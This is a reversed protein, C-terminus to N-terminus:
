SAIMERANEFAAATPKEGSLMTAITSIREEGNLLKMCTRIHGNKFEKYIFYHASARAAIQPQHTIALIQHGISLEKMIIGVQRAAEGSIGTDIEDFILTPLQVSKAVLSKISLMLRSLEGGSVVKRLPEFRDSNNADFLFEIDDNGFNNLEGSNKIEIRIRANPMGVKALLIHVKEEIPKAIQARKLSLKEAIKKLSKLHDECQKEVVKITEMLNFAKELQEGLVQKIDILEKTTSVDHKKFLKYGASIRENMLNVKEEDYHVTNNLRDLDGAIDQLEIQASHLRDTLTPVDPHLASLSSLQNFLTKLQQVLPHDGESLGAYVTSLINKINEANEIVKLEADLKELEDDTFNAEELEDLLFKKYDSERESETQRKKMELLEKRSSIYKKYLLQYDVLESTNGALVDIVQRQFDSNELELTDFQQHLDVLLSSLQKLIGLSVPSDNIFARSKNNPAIERRIVIEDEESIENKKLFDMISNHDTQFVGEVYCKKQRDFLINSDARQGLILSLGGMLISKGAGTEGTIINLGACFDIKLDEIIAYNKIHLQQLM